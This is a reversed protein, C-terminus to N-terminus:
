KPGGYRAGIIILDLVVSNLMMLQAPPTSAM